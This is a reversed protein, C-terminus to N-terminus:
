PTSINVGVEDGQAAGRPADHLLKDMRPLSGDPNPEMAADWDALAFGSADPNM